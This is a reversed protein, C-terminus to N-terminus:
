IGTIVHCFNRVEIADMGFYHQLGANMERHLMAATRIGGEKESSYLVGFKNCSALAMAWAM